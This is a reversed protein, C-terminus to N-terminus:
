ETLEGLPAMTGGGANAYLVDLRGHREGVEAYLRDLDALKTSDAQVGIANPGIAGGAADLEPKRRGTIYVVAGESAFAKAAALGIGTTGGTVVAVKGTLKNGM